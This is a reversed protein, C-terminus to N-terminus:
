EGHFIPFILPKTLVVTLNRDTIKGIMYQWSNFVFYHDELKGDHGFRAVSFRRLGMFYM